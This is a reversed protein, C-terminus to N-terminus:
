KGWNMTTISLQLVTATAMWILYPVQALPLAALRRGDDLRHILTPPSVVDSKRGYRDHIVTPFPRM